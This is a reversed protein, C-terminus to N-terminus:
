QVEFRVSCCIPLRSQAAGRSHDEQVDLHPPGLLATRLKLSADLRRDQLFCLVFLEQAFDGHCCLDCVRSSFEHLQLIKACPYV